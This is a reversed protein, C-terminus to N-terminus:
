YSIESKHGHKVEMLFLIEWCDMQGYGKGLRIVVKLTPLLPRLNTGM